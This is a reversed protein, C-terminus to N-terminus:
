INNKLYVSFVGGGVVGGGGGSAQATVITYFGEGSLFRGRRDFGEEGELRHVLFWQLVRCVCGREFHKSYHARREFAKLKQM